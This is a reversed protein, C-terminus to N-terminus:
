GSEVRFTDAAPEQLDSRTFPVEIDEGTNEADVASTDVNSLAIRVTDGVADGEGEGEAEYVLMEGQFGADDSGSEVAVAASDYDVGRDDATTFDATVTAGGDLDAQTIEFSVTQEVSTGQEVDTTEVAALGTGEAGPCAVDTYSDAVGTRVAAEGGFVHLTDIDCGREDFWAATADHTEDGPTLVLPARLDGQHPANALADAFRVGTALGVDATGFGFDDAFVDAVEAATEWRNAGALRATEYGQEELESEVGSGVAAKGGLIVVADAGAAALGREAADHLQDAVTLLVPHPGDYAGPGAALADPFETGTALFAADGDLGLEEAVADPLAGASVQEAIREATEFRTAGAVRETDTLTSRDVLHDEVEPSVAAPGGLLTARSAGLEDIAEVVADPVSGGVLDGPVLLV